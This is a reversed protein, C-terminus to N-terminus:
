SSQYVEQILKLYDALPPLGISARLADVQDMDATPLVIPQGDKWQDIPAVQTGYVQLEGRGILVRDLLLAYSQGDLGGNQFAAKVLPLMQEQTRHNGHQVILFAAHSADSGVLSTGPWGYEDIIEQLRTLHEADLAMMRTILELSPQVIGGAILEQRIAQDAEAMHLLEESLAPNGFSEAEPAACAGLSHLLLLLACTKM